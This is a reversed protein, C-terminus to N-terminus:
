VASSADAPAAGAASANEEQETEIHTFRGGAEYVGGGLHKIRM